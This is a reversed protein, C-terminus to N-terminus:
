QMPLIQGCDHRRVFRVVSEAAERTARDLQVVASMQQEIGAYAFLAALAVLVNLRLANRDAVTQIVFFDRLVRDQVFM